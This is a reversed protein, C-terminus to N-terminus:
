LSIIKTATNDWSLTLLNAESTGTFPLGPSDDIFSILRSNGDTSGVQYLVIAQFAQGDYTETLDDADLTGLTNTLNSLTSSRHVIASSPIASLFEDTNQNPTYVTTKIFATKFSKSTIDIGGKFLAEKSKKYIFNAMKYALM